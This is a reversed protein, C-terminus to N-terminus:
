DNQRTQLVKHEVRIQGAQPLPRLDMDKGNGGVVDVAM